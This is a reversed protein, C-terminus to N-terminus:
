YFDIMEPVQPQKSFCIEENDTQLIFSVSCKMAWFLAKCGSIACIILVKFFLGKKKGTVAATTFILVAVVNFSSTAFNCSHM